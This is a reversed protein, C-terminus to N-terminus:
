KKKTNAGIEFNIYNKIDNRENESKFGSNRAKRLAQKYNKLVSLFLLIIM